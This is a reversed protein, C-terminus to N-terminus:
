KVPEFTIVQKKSPKVERMSDWQTGDYSDSEGRFQIYVDFDKFYYIKDLYDVAGEGYSDGGDSYGNNAELKGEYPIPSIDMFENISKYDKDFQEKFREFNTM